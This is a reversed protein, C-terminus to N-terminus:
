PMVDDFLRRIDSFQITFGRLRSSWAFLVSFRSDKVENIRQTNLTLSKQSFLVYCITIMHIPVHTSRVSGIAERAPSFSLIFEKVKVLLFERCSFRSKLVLVSLFIQWTFLLQIKQIQEERGIPLLKIDDLICEMLLSHTGVCVQFASYWYYQTAACQQFASVRRKGILRMKKVEVFTDLFRFDSGQQARIVVLGYM